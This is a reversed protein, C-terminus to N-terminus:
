FLHGFLLSAMGFYILLGTLDKVTTILPDSGAAPDFGFKNLLWPFAYGIMAAVLVTGVMSVGVVIGLAPNGQWAIAVLAVIVGTVTGLSLGVKVEQWLYKSFESTDVHGLAMGRVFITSSQTGVNGGMDMVAPIFFALALVAELSAEFQEIIGGAMLGGALAFLLWPLRIGVVTWVPSDILRASRFADVEAMELLGAMKFVDETTEEEVVDM